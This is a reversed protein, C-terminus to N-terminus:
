GQKSKNRFVTLFDQRDNLRVLVPNRCSSARGFVVAYRDELTSLVATYDEGIYNKLFEMGTADFVRLAFVTNCQNLISKTVNATRQTVVICGLGYKRGQLIAKATGNTAAKDGESAVATWEPILSHAEEFVICARATDSMKDQLIELLTETIIRTIETPTLSAMSARGQYPKSDQRWVGIAAPSYIKVFHDQDSLFVALDDHVAQAFQIVSGGEEVNQQVNTKGDSGLRAIQELKPREAEADYYPKLEQAYQNTLDLCVVKIKQHVMREVLELALFSKGSGLIGLIATNHTVLENLDIQITHTTGPFHGVAEKTPAYEEVHVLFVPENLNPIWKVLEFGAKEQNWCGIKNADARVYGFMNKHQVIEEKTLGNIIQFLVMTRGLRVEVLRGEELDIDTRVVEFHLRSIDTDPAVLGVLRDQQRIVSHSSLASRFSSSLQDMHPLQFAYPTSGVGWSAQLTARADKPVELELVRLWRGESWGVYDLAFGVDYKENVGPLVILSGFSSADETTQRILAVAPTQRAIVEGVLQAPSAGMWILSWRQFLEALSELPHLGVTVAWAVGITIYERPTQRHFAIVAFLFIASFISRPGGVVDCYVFLSRSLQQWLKYRSDKLAISLIGAACVTSVYALTILWVSRDFSAATPIPWLNTALLGVIGAVAYSVADSPKTFFPTVILKGLLLAALGSFFWLGKTTTPPIWDGLAIKCALFLSGLYALLIFLRVRQSIV